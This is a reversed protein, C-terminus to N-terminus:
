TSRFATPTTSASADAGPIAGQARSAVDEFIKMGSDLTEAFREEEGRLAAEVTGRKAVLEPYAEGMAEVLPAVMRHFFGGRVGLM